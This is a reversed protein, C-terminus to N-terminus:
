VNEPTSYKDKLLSMRRDFDAREAIQVKRYNVAKDEDLTLKEAIAAAEAMVGAASKQVTDTTVDVAMRLGKYYQSAAKTTVVTEIATKIRLFLPTSHEIDAEFRTKIQDLSNVNDRYAQQHIPQIKLAQKAKDVKGFYHDENFKAKDVNKQLTVIQIQLEAFEADTAQAQKEKLEIMQRDLSEREARWKEYIPQKEALEKTTMDIAVGIAYYADNNAIVGDNLKHVMLHGFDVITELNEKIDSHKIRGVMKKYAAKEFGIEVLFKEVFGKYNQLNGVFQGLNEYDTALGAAIEYIESTCQKGRQIGVELKSLDEVTAEGKIIKETTKQYEDVLQTNEEELRMRKKDVEELKEKQKQDVRLKEFVDTAELTTDKAM